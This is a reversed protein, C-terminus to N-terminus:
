GRFNGNYGDKEEEMLWQLPNKVPVRIRMQSRACAHILRDDTTLILDALAAEACAVHIADGPKIGLAEIDEARAVVAPTVWQYRTASAALALLQARREVDPANRLERDVVESSIWELEGRWARALVLRVAESELRIREQVQDDFPRNLCCADLYVRM